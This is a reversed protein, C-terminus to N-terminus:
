THLGAVPRDQVLQAFGVAVGAVVVVYVTVPVVPADQEDVSWTVTVTIGSGTILAPGVLVM